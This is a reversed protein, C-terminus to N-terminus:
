FAHLLMSIFLLNENETQNWIELMELIQKRETAGSFIATFINLKFEKINFGNFSTEISIHITHNINKHWSISLYPCTPIENKVLIYWNM